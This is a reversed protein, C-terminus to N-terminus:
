RSVWAAMAVGPAVQVENGLFGAAESEEDRCCLRHTAGDVTM